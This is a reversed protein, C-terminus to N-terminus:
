AYRVRFVGYASVKEIRGPGAVVYVTDLADIDFRIDELNQRIRREEFDAFAQFKDEIHEAVNAPRLSQALEFAVPWVARLYYDVWYRNEAKIGTRMSFMHAFLAM